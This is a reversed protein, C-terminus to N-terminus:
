QWISIQLVVNSELHHLVGANGTETMNESRLTMRLEDLDIEAGNLLYRTEVTVRISEDNCKDCRKFKVSGTTSLPLRLNTLSVEYAEAITSFDAVALPSVALISILLFPRFPM